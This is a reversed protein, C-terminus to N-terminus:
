KKEDGNVPANVSIGDRVEGVLTVDGTLIMGTEQHVLLRVVDLELIVIVVLHAAEKASRGKSKM